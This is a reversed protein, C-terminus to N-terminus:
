IQCILTCPTSRSAAWYKKPRCTWSRIIKQLVRIARLHTRIKLHSAHARPLDRLCRTELEGRHRGLALGRFRVRMQMTEAASSSAKLAAAEAVAQLEAA